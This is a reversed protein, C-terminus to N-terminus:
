WCGVSAAIMGAGNFNTQSGLSDVVYTGCADATQTGTPAANITYSTATQAPVSLTYYSTNGSMIAVTTAGAAANLGLQAMTAVYTNNTAFFKEERAALDLVANKADVRRGKMISSNYAPLAVAALLGVIAIAIVLEILTFGQKKNINLKIKM